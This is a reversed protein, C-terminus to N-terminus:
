RSSSYTKVCELIAKEVAALHAYLDKAGRAGIDYAAVLAQKITAHYTITSSVIPDGKKSLSKKQHILQWGYTYGKIKFREKKSVILIIPRKKKTKM